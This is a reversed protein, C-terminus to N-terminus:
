AVVEANTDEEDEKPKEMQIPYTVIQWGQKKESVFHYITGHPHKIRAHEISSYPIYLYPLQRVDNVVIVNEDAAAAEIANVKAKSM